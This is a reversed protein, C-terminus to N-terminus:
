WYVDSPRNLECQTYKEKESNIILEPATITGKVKIPGGQLNIYVPIQSEFTVGEHIYIGANFVCWSKQSNPTIDKLETYNRVKFKFEYKTIERPNEDNDIDNSEEDGIKIINGENDKKIISPNYKTNKCFEIMTNFVYHVNANSDQAIIQPSNDYKGTKPDYHTIGNFVSIFNYADIQIVSEKWYAWAMNFPLNDYVSYDYENKKNENKVKQFGKLIVEYWEISGDSENYKVDQEANILIELSDEGVEYAYYRIDGNKGDNNFVSVNIPRNITISDSKTNNITIPENPAEYCTMYTNNLSRVVYPGVNQEIVTNNKIIGLNSSQKNDYWSQTVKVYAYEKVKDYLTNSYPGIAIEVNDGNSKIITNDSNTCDCLPCMRMNFQVELQTYEILSYDQEREPTCYCVKWTNSETSNTNGPYQPIVYKQIYDYSDINKKAYLAMGSRPKITMEKSQIEDKIIWTSQDNIDNYFILQIKMKCRESYYLENFYCTNTFQKYYKEFEEKDNKLDLEKNVLIFAIVKKTIWFEQYVCNLYYVTITKPDNRYDYIGYCIFDFELDNDKIVTISNMENNNIIEISKDKQIDNNEVTEKEISNENEINNENEKIENIKEEKIVDFSHENQMEKEIVKNENIDQIVSIHSSESNNENIQEDEKKEHCEDEKIIYEEIIENSNNENKPIDNNNRTFLNLIFNM